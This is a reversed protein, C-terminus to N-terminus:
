NGNTNLSDPTNIKLCLNTYFQKDSASLQYAAAYYNKFGPEANYADAYERKLARKFAYGANKFNIFYSVNCRQALLNSFERFDSQKSLFLNGFYNERFNSVERQSNGLVLYNDVITFYPKRFGSLVDGLLYMPVQNFNFQGIDETLMASINNCFPRLAAGNKVKIIAIREQFRTTVLAFENDLLKNFESDFQVGSETKIKNFLAKKDKVLHAKQQWSNLLEKFAALDSIGYVNSYATTVPFINQLTLEIPVMNRFIDMYSVPSNGKFTTFGNFLLADSKYNLSLSTNAPLKFLGKWLDSDESKYLNNLLLGCQQYNVYLNGLSTSHQQDSILDFNAPLSKKIDISEQLLTKSFSGSWVNHQREVIYFERNVSDPQFVYAKKSGLTTPKLKMQTIAENSFAGSSATTFLYEISDIGQPHLSLFIDQANFLSQASANNLLGKRLMHLEDMRDSGLLSAFLPSNKYIDYFSADNNFEFVVAASSPISSIVDASHNGSMKLNDFYKVTVFVTAALLLITITILRKM